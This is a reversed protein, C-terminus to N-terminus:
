PRGSELVLVRGTLAGISKRNEDAAAEVKLLRAAVDSNQQTIVGLQGQMQSIQKGQEIQASNISFAITLIAGLLLPVIIRFLFTFLPNEM